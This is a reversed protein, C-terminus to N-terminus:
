STRKLQKIKILLAVIIAIFFAFFSALGIFIIKTYKDFSFNEKEEIYRQLTGEKKDYSYWAYEGTETNMGYLLYFEKEEKKYADIKREGIEITEKKYGTPIQPNKDYNIFISVKQSVYEEYLTYTNNSEDYIYNQIEGEANKLGIITFNTKEGHYAPIEEENMKVTTETYLEGLKKLDERKRVVSLTDNGVMVNIPEKEKVYAKITYTRKSGNEATVVINFQNMGESVSKEGEGSVSSKSDSKTVGIQIKTVDAELEVNYETTDKNFAPDLSVGEVWLSNLTNVSSKPTEKPREVVQVTASDSVGTQNGSADITKGTLKLSVTGTGTTTCTVSYNKSGNNGDATYNIDDFSCGKVPGSSSLHVEWMSADRVSISAKFTSGTYVKSTATVNARAEVKGIGMFFSLLLLGCIIRKM